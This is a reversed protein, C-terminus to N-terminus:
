CSQITRKHYSVDGPLPLYDALKLRFRQSLGHMILDDLSGVM